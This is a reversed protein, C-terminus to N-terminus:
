GTRRSSARAEAPSFGLSAMLKHIHDVHYHVGYRQEIVQAIRRSTWLDTAFGCAAAGKLLAAVLARRQRATLKAPRGPVPKAVLADPGGRRYERLWRCVSQPTTKLTQAIQTPGLGQQSLAVAKRRRRELQEQSGSPRM